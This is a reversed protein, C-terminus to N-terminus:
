ADAEENTKARSANLLQAHKVMAGYLRQAMAPLDHELDAFSEFVRQLTTSEQWEGTRNRSGEFVQQAAHLAAESASPEQATHLAMAFACATKRAVPLPRQWAEQYLTVLTQLEALAQAPLLADFQVTGNLGIQVSTTPTGSACAVLHNLWLTTLTHARPYKSKEKGELVSGPRIDIQLWASGDAKSKWLHQGNAWDATLSHTGFTFRASQPPVDLPWAQTMDDLRERLADRQQLLMDQQMQGFGALALEGSLRLIQLAHEPDPAQVVRQTLLFSDLHNLAFPEEQASSAEPTDLHVRLRDRMFVDVPQKLLRQLQQHTLETPPTSNTIDTHATTVKAPTQAHQWDAAYTSV